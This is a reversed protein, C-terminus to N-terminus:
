APVQNEFEAFTGETNQLTSPDQLPFFTTQFIFSLTIRPKGFGAM